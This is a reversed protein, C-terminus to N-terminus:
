EWVRSDTREKLPPALGLNKAHTAALRRYALAQEEYHAKLMPDSKNKALREFKLTDELYGAITKM